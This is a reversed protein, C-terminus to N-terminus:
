AGLFETVQAHLSDVETTDVGLVEAVLARDANFSVFNVLEPTVQQGSQRIVAVAANEVIEPNM